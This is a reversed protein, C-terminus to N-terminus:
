DACSMHVVHGERKKGTEGFVVLKRKILRMIFSRLVAPEVFFFMDMLGFHGAALYQGRLCSTDNSSFPVFCTGYLSSSSCHRTFFSSKAALFHFMGM